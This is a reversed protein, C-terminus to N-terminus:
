SPKWSKSSLAFRTLIQKQKFLPTKGSLKTKLKKNLTKLFPAFKTSFDDDLFALYNEILKDKDQKIRKVADTKLSEFQSRIAIM